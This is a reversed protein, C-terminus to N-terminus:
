KTQEHLFFLFLFKYDILNHPSYHLHTAKLMHTTALKGSALQTRKAQELKM